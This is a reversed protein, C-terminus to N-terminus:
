LEVAWLHYASWMLLILKDDETCTGKLVEVRDVHDWHSLEYECGCNEGLITDM